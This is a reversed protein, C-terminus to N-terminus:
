SRFSIPRWTEIRNGSRAHVPSRFSPSLVVPRRPIVHLWPAACERDLNCKYQLAKRKPSWAGYLPDPCVTAIPPHQECGIQSHDKLRGPRVYVRVRCAPSTKSVTSCSASAARLESSMAAKLLTELLLRSRQAVLEHCSTDRTQANNLSSESDFTLM